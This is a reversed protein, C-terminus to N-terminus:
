NAPAHALEEMERQVFEFAETAAAINSAAVKGGFREEIAHAVADLTVLGSLAAFGGL